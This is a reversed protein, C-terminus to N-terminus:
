ALALVLVLVLPDTSRSRSTFLFASAPVLALVLSVILVRLDDNKLCSSVYPCLKVIRLYAQIEENEKIVTGTGEFGVVHM